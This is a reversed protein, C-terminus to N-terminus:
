PEVPLRLEISSPEQLGNSSDRTRSVVLKVWDSSCRSENSSLKKSLGNCVWKSTLQVGSSKLGTRGQTSLTFVVFCELDSSSSSPYPLDSGLAECDGALTSSGAEGGGRRLMLAVLDNTFASLPDFRTLFSVVGAVSDFGDFRGLNIVVMDAFEREVELGFALRRETEVDLEFAVSSERM